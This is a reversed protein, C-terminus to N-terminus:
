TYVTVGELVFSPNTKICSNKKETGSIQERMHIGSKAGRAEDTLPWLIESKSAVLEDGKTGTPNWARSFSYRLLQTFTILSYLNGKGWRRTM